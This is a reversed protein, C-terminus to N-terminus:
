AHCCWSCVTVGHMVTMVMVMHMVFMCVSVHMVFVYIVSTNVHCVCEFLLTM